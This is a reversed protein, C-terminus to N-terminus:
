ASAFSFAPARRVTEPRRPASPAVAPVRAGIDIDPHRTYFFFNLLPHRAATWRAEFTDIEFAMVRHPLNGVHRLPVPPQDPFVDSFLLQEYQRRDKEVDTGTLQHETAM